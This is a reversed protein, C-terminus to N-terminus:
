HPLAQEFIQAGGIVFVEKEDQVLKIADGLSGAIECGPIARGGQRTVVINRRKPLPRGISYYTKRGMIVTHGKTLDKFHQLDAPLHWPLTNHDGIVRNSGLAAILSLIM